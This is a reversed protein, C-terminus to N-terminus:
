NPLPYREVIVRVSIGYINKTSLTGIVNQTGFSFRLAFPGYDTVNNILENSWLLAARGFLNSSSERKLGAPYLNFGTLNTGVITNQNYSWPAEPDDTLFSLFIDDSVNNSVIPSGYYATLHLFDNYSPIRSTVPALGKPDIVAYYNYFLGFKEETSPDNNVYRWAGTTLSNWENEDEVYPIPTGDRYTKVKLNKTTWYEDAIKLVDYVNGDIDSITTDDEIETEGICSSIILVFFLLSKKM